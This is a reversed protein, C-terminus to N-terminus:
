AILASFDRRLLDGRRCAAVDPHAGFRNIFYIQDILKEPILDSFSIVCKKNVKCREKIKNYVFDNLCGNDVECLIKNEKKCSNCYIMSLTILVGTIFLRVIKLMLRKKDM